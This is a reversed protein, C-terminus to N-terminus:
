KAGQPFMSVLLDNRVQQLRSIAERVPPQDQSTLSHLVDTLRRIIGRVAIESQKQYKHSQIAYDRALESFTVVDTLTARAKDYDNAGYLRSTEAMQRQAIQVCIRPREGVSAVKFRAKLQDVSPEERAAARCLVFGALALMLAGALGKRPGLRRTM